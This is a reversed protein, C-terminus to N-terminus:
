AYLCVLRDRVVRGTCLGLKAFKQHDRSIEFGIPRLM